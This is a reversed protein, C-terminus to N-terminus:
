GDEIGHTTREDYDDPDYVYEAPHDHHMWRDLQADTPPRSHNMRALTHKDDDSKLSVIPGMYRHPMTYRIDDVHFPGIPEYEYVEHYGPLTTRTYILGGRIFRDPVREGAARLGALIEEVTM